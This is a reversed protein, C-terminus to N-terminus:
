ISMARWSQVDMVVPAAVLGGGRITISYAMVSAVRILDSPTFNWSTFGFPM